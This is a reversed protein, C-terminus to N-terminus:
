PGIHGRVQLEECKPKAERREHDISKNAPASVGALHSSPRDGALRTYPKRLPTLGKHTPQNACSRDAGSTTLNTGSARGKVILNTGSARGKVILNTGSARGMGILNTGSARGKGILNTGSALLVM